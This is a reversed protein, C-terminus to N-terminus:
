EDGKYANYTMENKDKIISNCSALLNNYDLSDKVINQPIIHEINSNNDGISKCCYCCYYNQEELLSKKIKHKLSISIDGYSSGVNHKKYNILESPAKQKSIKLM